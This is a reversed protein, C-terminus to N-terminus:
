VFHVLDNGELKPLFCVIKCSMEPVSLNSEVRGHSSLSM